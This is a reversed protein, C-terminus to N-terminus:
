KLYEVLSSIVKYKAQNIINYKNRGFHSIVLLQAGKHLYESLYVFQSIKSIDNVNVSVIISTM